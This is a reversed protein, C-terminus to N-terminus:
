RILWTLLEEMFIASDKGWYTTAAPDRPVGTGRVGEPTGLLLTAMGEALVVLRGKGGVIASAAFVEAPKGAEDLQWAFPTGGEVARGGSFPLERDAANIAGKRAIAGNNHRYPTDGTLRLGFPEILANVGTAALPARREEDLVLLLSGGQRVFGALAEREAPKIEQLPVRLVIVRCGTLSATDIPSSSETIEAGV